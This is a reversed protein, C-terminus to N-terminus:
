AAAQLRLQWSRWGFAAIILYLAYLAATPYLGEKLALMITLSNILMWWAWNEILKRAVMWTALVSGWTIFADLWALRADALALLLWGSIGSLILVAAGGALHWSGQLRSIELEGAHSGGSQWQWFGYVAMALYYLQLSSFMLLGAHLFIYWYIASSIFAAYWCAIKEQVALLLYALAFCAALLELWSAALWTQLPELM